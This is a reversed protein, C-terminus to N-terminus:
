EAASESRLGAGRLGRGFGVKQRGAPQACPAPLPSPPKSPSPSPLPASLSPLTRDSYRRVLFSSDWCIGSGWHVAGRRASAAAQLHVCVSTFFCVFFFALAASKCFFVNRFLSKTLVHQTMNRGVCDHKFTTWCVM